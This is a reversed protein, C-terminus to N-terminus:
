VLSRIIDDIKDLGEIPIAGCEIAKGLAPEDSLAGIDPDVIVFLLKGIMQCFDVLDLTHKSDTYLETVVVAQALGVLLRNSAKLTSDTAKHDPLYETIVGGNTVIDIALPMEDTGGIEDFGADLVAFSTGDAARVGLHAAGDIGGRLTSIVQVGAEGFAQAVTTTLEIGPATANHTGILTVSKKQPDPMNGRVLLLAPPDNLERLLEGYAADFYTVLSIDREELLTALEEAKPLLKVAGTVKRAIADTMGGVQMLADAKAELMAKTSGFQKILVDFTRASVGGLSTLALLHVPISYDSIQKM